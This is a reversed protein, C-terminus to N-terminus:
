RSFRADIIDCGMEDFVVPNLNFPWVDGKAHVVGGSISEEAPPSVVGVPESLNGAPTIEGKLPVGGEIVFEEM